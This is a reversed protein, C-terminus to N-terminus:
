DLYSIGYCLLVERCEPMVDRVAVLRLIAVDQMVREGFPRSLGTSSGSVSRYGGFLDEVCKEAHLQSGVMRGVDVLGDAETSSVRWTTM